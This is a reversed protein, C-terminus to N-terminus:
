NGYDYKIGCFPCFTHRVQVPHEKKIGELKLDFESATGSVMKNETETEIMYFVKPAKVDEVKKSKWVSYKQIIKEQIDNLCNCM